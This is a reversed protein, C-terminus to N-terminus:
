GTGGPMMRMLVGDRRAFHHWLAGAAHLGALGFLAYALLQHVKEAPHFADPNSAVGFNLRFIGYDFARGHWVYAIFGFFPILAMLAYLLQHAAFSTRRTFEGVDPPLDPPRHTARWALRAIVLALYILGVSAHVNVWFPMASRPIDDFLLGLVGLFIILAAVTWHFAIAGAGYRELAPAVRQSVIQASM